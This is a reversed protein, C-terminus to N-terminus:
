GHSLGCGLKLLHRKESAHYLRPLRLDDAYTGNWEFNDTIWMPPMMHLAVKVFEVLQNRRLGVIVATATTTAATCGLNMGFSGTGYLYQCLDM